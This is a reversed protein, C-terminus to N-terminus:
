GKGFAAVLVFTIPDIATKVRFGAALHGKLDHEFILAVGVDFPAVDLLRQGVLGVLECNSLRLSRCHFTFQGWYYFLVYIVYVGVIRTLLSFELELM